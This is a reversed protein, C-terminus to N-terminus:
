KAGGGLEKPTPLRKQKVGLRDHIQREWQDITLAGKKKEWEEPRFVSLQERSLVPVNAGLARTGGEKLESTYGPDMEAGHEQAWEIIHTQPMVQIEAETWQPFDLQRELWLAVPRTLFYPRHGAEPETGFEFVRSANGRLKSTRRQLDVFFPEGGSRVVSGDEAGNFVFTTGRSANLAYIVAGRDGLDLLAKYPWGQCLPKARDFEGDPGDLNGGGVLVCTRLREEVTGTLALMFSGLSYGVAAIRRPDVEPHQALYGVAQRVDSIMQGAMYPGVAPIKELKDHARTGSKKLPNREGEGLPDYTLVAAGARAYLIGAYYAYWSFKDGGHGNVIVSTLLKEKGGSRAAGLDPGFELGLGAFRHCAACRGEFVLKGRAAVGTLHLAPLYTEYVDQRASTDTAGLLKAARQRVTADRHKRLFNRQTASFDTSRVVRNQLAGWLAEIREPRHLVADLM